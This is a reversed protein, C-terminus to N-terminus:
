KNINLMEVLANYFKQCCNLKAVMQLLKLKKITKKWRVFEIYRDNKAGRHKTFKDFEINRGDMFDLITFM